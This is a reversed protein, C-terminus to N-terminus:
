SILYIIITRAISNKNQSCCITTVLLKFYKQRTRTILLNDNREHLGFELIVLTPLTAHGLIKEERSKQIFVM